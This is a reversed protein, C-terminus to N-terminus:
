LFPKMSENCIYGYNYIVYPYNPINLQNGHFLYGNHILFHSKETQAQSIIMCFEINTLWRIKPMWNIVYDNQISTFEHPYASEQDIMSSTAGYCQWHKLTQNITYFEMDYKSYNLKVSLTQDQIAVPKTAKTRSQNSHWYSFFQLVEVTSKFNWYKSCPLKLIHTSVM